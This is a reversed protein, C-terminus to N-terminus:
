EMAQRSNKRFRKHHTDERKAYTRTKQLAIRCAPSLRPKERKMCAIIREVNPIEAGCLRFVDPTCAIRQEETGRDEEGFAGASGGTLAVIVVACAIGPFGL